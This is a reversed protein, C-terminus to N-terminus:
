HTNVLVAHTSEGVASRVRLTYAGAAFPTTDIDLRSGNCTAAYVSVGAANFLEVHRLGEAEVHLMDDVPNPYVRAPAAKAVPEVGEAGIVVNVTATGFNGMDDTAVVHYERSETISATSYQQYPYDIDIDPTWRFQLPRRAYAVDVGIERLTDAAHYTTDRLVVIDDEVLTFRLTDRSRLDPYESCLSTSIPVVISLTDSIVRGPVGVFTLTHGAASINVSPNAPTLTDGNSSICYYDVGCVATGQFSLTSLGYSYDSGAVSLPVVVPHSHVITDGLGNSFNVQAMPSNLSHSELFVGSDYSNDGVNCISIHMHYQECPVITASASLKQTFGGYKVGSSWTNAVYYQTFNYNCGTGSGGASGAQGPNVTNIAVPIGDPYTSSVTHPISAMNWKRIQGTEPDPGTIYFAFVDNFSSCVYDPYERSAFCYNVTIFPSVSVFDFDLWSCANLTSSAISNLESDSNYNSVPDSVSGYSPGPAYSVKGTTMVVGSDMYLYVFGNSQFTGIQPKDINGTSGNFKVNFIYVGNGVLKNNVFTEVDQGSASSVSINQAVASATSLAAVVLCVVLLRSYLEKLM